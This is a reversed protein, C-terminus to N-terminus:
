AVKKRRAMGVLGLLGSGFLWVAGPVPVAAVWNGMYVVSGPGTGITISDTDLVQTFAFVLAEPPTPPVSLTINGGDLATGSLSLLGSATVLNSGPPVYTVGDFVLSQVLSTGTLPGWGSNALVSGGSLVLTGTTGGGGAETFEFTVSASMVIGPTTLAIFLGLLSFMRGKKSM